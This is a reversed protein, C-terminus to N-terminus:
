KHLHELGNDPTISELQNQLTEIQEKIAIIRKIQVTSLDTLKTM